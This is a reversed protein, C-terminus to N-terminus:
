TGEGVKEQSMYEDSFAMVGECIFTDISMLVQSSSINGLGLMKKETISFKM